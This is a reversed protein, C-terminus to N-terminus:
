KASTPARRKAPRKAPARRVCGVILCLGYAICFFVADELAPAHSPGRLLFLGGWGLAWLAPASYLFSDRLLRGVLYLVAGLCAGAAAYGFIGFRAYIWLIWELGGPQALQEVAQWLRAAYLGLASEEVRYVWVAALAAPVPLLCLLGTRDSSRACLLVSFVAAFFAHRAFLPPDFVACGLYLLLAACAAVRSRSSAIYCAVAGTALATLLGGVTQLAEPVALWESLGPLLCAAMGAALCLLACIRVPAGAWGARGAFATRGLLSEMLGSGLWVACLLVCLCAGVTRYASEGAPVIKEGAEMPLMLFPDAEQAALLALASGLFCGAFVLLVARQAPKEPFTLAIAGACIWLAARVPADMQLAVGCFVAGLAGVVGAIRLYRM